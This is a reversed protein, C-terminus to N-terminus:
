KKNGRGRGRGSSTSTGKTSGPSTGRSPAATESHQEKPASQSTSQAAAGPVSSDSQRGRDAGRGRGRGRGRGKGPKPQFQAKLKSFESRRDNVSKMFAFDREDFLATRYEEKAEYDKMGIATFGALKRRHVLDSHLMFTYQAMRILAVQMKDAHAKVEDFKDSLDTSGLDLAAMAIRCLPRVQKDAVSKAFEDIAQQKPFRKFAEMTEHNTTKPRVDVLDHFPFESLDPKLDSPPRLSSFISTWTRADADALDHWLEDYMASADETLLHQLHEDVIARLRASKQARTPQAAKQVMDKISLLQSQSLGDIASQLALLTGHSKTKVINPDDGSSADSDHDIDRTDGDDGALLSGSSPHSSDRPSQSGRTLPRRSM